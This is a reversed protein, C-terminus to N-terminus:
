SGPPVNRPLLIFYRGQQKMRGARERALAGAGWFVDGRVSGKIASGTDQTVMLRRIPRTPNLPDTTELWIPAGLPIVGRDIALSREPTLGVGLAGVPGGTRIRRFFIYAKNLDMVADTQDPNEALWKRISQLSVKEAPIAGRDVLARGIAFYPHGNRGAFGVRIATGDPLVVRGSGQISLFFADVPDDVWLLELKKGDLAGRRIESRTPLDSSDQPMRHLPYRYKETRTLSGRLDPEFYGTFLGQDVGRDTIAHAVFETAFFHQAADRDAGVRVLQGAKQCVDAWDVAPGPRAEAKLRLLRPCSKAFTGLAQSQDDGAWGTLDTFSVPTFDPRPVDTVDSFLSCGSLGLALLM